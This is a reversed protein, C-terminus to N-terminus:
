LFSIIHIKAVSFMSSRNHSVVRNVYCLLDDALRIHLMAVGDGVELQLLQQIIHLPEMQSEEIHRKEILGNLCPGVPRHHRDHETLEFPITITVDVRLIITVLQHQGALLLLHEVSVYEDGMKQALGLAANFTKSLETSYYLEGGNVKPQAALECDLDANLREVNVGLKKLLNPILYDDSLLMGKLLHVNEVTPNQQSRAIEQAKEIAEQSKITFQNFNM